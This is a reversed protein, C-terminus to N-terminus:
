PRPGGGRGTPTGSRALDERLQAVFADRVPRRTDPVWVAGVRWRAEPISLPLYAIGEVRSTTVSNPVIAVGMGAAVLALVTFFETASQVVRPRFGYRACVRLVNAHLSSSRSPAIEVFPEDALSEPRRKALEARRGEPVALVLREELVPVIAMPRDVPLRVFGLDLAGRELADLQDPSSMDALSVNVLPHSRRFRSVLRPVLLRTAVGFGLRLEGTDGRAARRVRELVGDAHRLLPGVDAALLEGVPTLTAGHRGRDFLAAGVEDELLVIQKTLAPQSLHLARAARGFHGQEALVQFSRLLRIEM